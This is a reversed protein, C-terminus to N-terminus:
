RDRSRVGCCVQGKTLRRGTGIERMIRTYWHHWTMRVFLTPQRAPLIESLAGNVRHAVLRNENSPRPTTSRDPRSRGNTCLNIM